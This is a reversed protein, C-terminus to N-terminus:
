QRARRCGISTNSHAIGVRNDYDVGVFRHRLRGAALSAVEGIGVAAPYAPGAPNLIVSAVGTAPMVVAGVFGVDVHDAPRDCGVEAWASGLSDLRTGTVEEDNWGMRDVAFRGANLGVQLCEDDAHAALRFHNIRITWFTGPSQSRLLSGAYTWM